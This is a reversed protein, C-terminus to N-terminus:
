DQAPLIGYVEFLQHQFESLEIPGTEGALTHKKKTLYATFAKNFEEAGRKRVPKLLCDLDRYRMIELMEDDRLWYLRKVPDYHLIHFFEELPHM